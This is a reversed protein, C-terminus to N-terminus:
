NSKALGYLTATSYQALNSLSAEYITLKNIVSTNDWTVSWFGGQASSSNNETVSDVLISKTTNSSYNPIYIFTNGFTSATNSAATMVGVYNTATGDSTSASAGNNRVYRWTVTASDNFKLSMDRDTFSAVSRPSIYLVLDTYTSPINNFEMNAAGGAGVTVSAIKKFTGISM